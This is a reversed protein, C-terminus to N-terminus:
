EEKKKKEIGYAKRYDELVTETDGFATVKGKNLWLVRDCFKEIMDFSHAAIMFSKGDARYDEFVKACKERFSADGASLAEDMLFIESDLYRTTSFALRGRMGSSLHKFKTEAFKELEAWAIIENLNKGLTEREIGYIAGYMFINEKVTLEELMGIGFGSLYTIIGNRTVKGADPQLLGAVLKLLTTKGAGNHGIVGLWEGKKIEFSIDDLAYFVDQSKGNKGFNEKLLGFLPPRSNVFFRKKIKDVQIAHM